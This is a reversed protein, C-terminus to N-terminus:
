MQNNDIIASDFKFIFVDSRYYGINYEFPMGHQDYVIRIRKIIPIDPTINFIGKISLQQPMLIEISERSSKAIIGKKLKLFEYLKRFNSELFDNDLELQLDPRFYSEFYLDTQTAKTYGYRRCLYALEWTDACQFVQYVDDITKKTGTEILFLKAQVGQENMEATFSSWAEIRTYIRDRKLTKKSGKGRERTIIGKDVLNQLAQRVTQRAVGLNTILENEGPLYDGANYPETELMQKIINEVQKYLPTGSNKDLLYSMDNFKNEM